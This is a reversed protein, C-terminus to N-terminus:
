LLPSVNIQYQSEFNWDTAIKKSANQRLLDILSFNHRIYNFTEVLEDASAMNCRLGLGNMQDIMESEDSSFLVLLGYAMYQYIKNSAGWMTQLNKDDSKDSFFALGVHHTEAISKLKSVDVPDHLVVRDQVSHRSILDILHDRYGNDPVTSVGFVSLHVMPSKSVAIILEPPLRERVLSGQYFLKLVGTTSEFSIQKSQVSIEALRPYNRMLKIDRRTGTISRLFEARLSNPVFVVDAVRALIKRSYRMFSYHLKGGPPADHEIYILKGNFFPRILCGLWATVPDSVVVMFPREKLLYKFSCFAYWVKKAFRTIKGGHDKVTCLTMPALREPNPLRIGAQEWNVIIPNSSQSVCTILNLLPPYGGIPLFQIFLIKKRIDAVISGNM